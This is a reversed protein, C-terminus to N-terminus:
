SPDVSRNANPVHKKPINITMLLKAYSSIACKLLKANVSGISRLSRTIELNKIDLKNKTMTKIMLLKNAFPIAISAGSLNTFKLGTYKKSYVYIALIITLMKADMIKIIMNLYPESFPLITNRTVKRPSPKIPPNSPFTNPSGSRLPIVTNKSWYRDYRISGILKPMSAIAMTIEFLIMFFFSSYPIRM